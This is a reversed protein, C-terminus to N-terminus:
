RVVRDYLDGLLWGVRWYHKEQGYEHERAGHVGCYFGDEFAHVERYTLPDIGPPDIAIDSEDTM